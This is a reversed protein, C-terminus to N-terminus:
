FGYRGEIPRDLLSAAKQAIEAEKLAEAYERENEANELRSYDFEAERKEKKMQAYIKASVVLGDEDDQLYYEGYRIYDGTIHCREWEFPNTVRKWRLM